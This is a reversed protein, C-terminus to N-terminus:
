DFLEYELKDVLKKLEKIAETDKENIARNIASVIMGKIKRLRGEQDLFVPEKENLIEQAAKIKDNRISTIRTEVDSLIEDRIQKVKNYLDKESRFDLDGANKYETLIQIDGKRVNVENKLIKLKLAPNSKGIIELGAAFRADRKITSESINFKSAIQESTSLESQGKSRVKDYGGRKKRLSLYNLGRYYSLQDPTLNRRGMQNDVMWIKVTDIADFSIKCIKFPIKLKQCIAYRNHGDILILQNGRDWVTIPDRCGEKSISQELRFFEEPTLPIIYDRLENLIILQESTNVM